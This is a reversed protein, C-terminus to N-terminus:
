EASIASPRLGAEVMLPLVREVFFPLEDKFNVFSVTTGQFGAEHMLVMQSVIHEPSGVLPFSGFGGAIRKAQQRQFMALTGGSDKAKSGIFNEVAVDDAMAVAYHEYYDEAEQQTERCVVHCTTLVGPSRDFETAKARFDAIQSKANEIRSFTTFLLDCHQAAFNRGAPSFAASIIPPCPEQLGSPDCYADVLNYFEGDFDFSDTSTLLRRVIGNWETGQHYRNDPGVNEVGFMNFEEDFWNCVINLGVRGNSAHDITALARALYVPHVLPVHCTAFLGIRKTLGSLAAAFAITELCTGRPDTAGGYGRWRMLPLLFEFGAEDAIQAVAAVDRWEAPWREDVRTMAIGSRANIAFVGLKFPADGLIPNIPRM